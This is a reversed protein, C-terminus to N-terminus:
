AVGRLQDILLQLQTNEYKLDFLDERLKNLEKVVANSYINATKVEREAIQLDERLAYVTKEMEIIKDVNQVNQDHAEKLKTILWRQDAFSLLSGTGLQETLNELGQEEEPTLM